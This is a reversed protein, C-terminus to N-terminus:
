ALGAAEGLKDLATRITDTVNDRGWPNRRTKGRYQQVALHAIQAPYLGYICLAVVIFRHMPILRKTADGLDHMADLQSGILDPPRQGPLRGCDPTALSGIEARQFTSCYWEGFEKQPETIIKKNALWDLPHVRLNLVVSHRENDQDTEVLAIQDLPNGDRGPQSTM